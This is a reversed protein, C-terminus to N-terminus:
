KELRKLILGGHLLHEREYRHTLFYWIGPRYWYGDIRRGRVRDDSSKMVQRLTMPHLIDKKLCEECVITYPIKGYDKCNTYFKHKKPSMVCTYVYINHISLYVEMIGREDKVMIAHGPDKLLRMYQM